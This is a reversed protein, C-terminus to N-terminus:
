LEFLPVNETVRDGDLLEQPEEELTGTAIMMPQTQPTTSRAIMM